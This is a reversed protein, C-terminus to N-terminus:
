TQLRIAEFQELAAEWTTGTGGSPAAILGTLDSVSADRPTLAGGLNFQERLTKLLSTHDFWPYPQGTAPRFVSGPTVGGGIFLAPVRVGLRDYLFLSDSKPPKNFPTPVDVPPAVHDYMGGHEDYTVVLLTNSFANNRGLTLLISTLLKEGNAVSIPLDNNPGKSDIGANKIPSSGKGPHNSNPPLNNPSWNAAYRPEIVSFKPLRGNEVDNRFSGYQSSLPGYDSEDFHCVNASSTQGPNSHDWKQDVYSLLSAFPTDHYYVKWNPTTSNPYARDFLEFISTDTVVGYAETVDTWKTLPYFSPDDVRTHNNKDVSPTACLSLVRNAYTQCPAAAHWVDCLAGFQAALASMSMLAPAIYSMVEAGDHYDIVFGDMTPPHSGPKNPLGFRDYGYIQGTMDPYLEGPDKAPVTADAPDTLLYVQIQRPHPGSTPNTENGTLGNVPSPFVGYVNDFSRNEFMLLVVHDIGPLPQTM